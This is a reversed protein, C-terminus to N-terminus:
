QKENFTQIIWYLDPAFSDFFIYLETEWHVELGEM